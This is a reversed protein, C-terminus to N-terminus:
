WWLVSCPGWVVLWGQPRRILSCHELPRRLTAGLQPSCLAKPAQPFAPCLSFSTIQWRLQAAEWFSGSSCLPSCLQPRLFPAVKSETWILSLLPSLSFPLFLPLGKRLRGSGVNAGRVWGPQLFRLVGAAMERRALPQAPVELPLPCFLVPREM